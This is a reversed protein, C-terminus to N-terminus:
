ARVDRLYGHVLGKLRDSQQQMTQAAELVQQSAAGTVEAARSVGTINSSVEQTGRSAQEVNRAIERTASGQETVAAAISASLEEAAAAVTEVNSSAQEAATAVASAQHLSERATQAMRGATEELDHFGHAVADLIEGIAGNFRTTLTDRQEVRRVREEQQHRQDEALEDARLMNDRFVQLAAAMAGVEDRRGVAPIAAQKDGAALRQMAATMSTVPGVITRAVVFSLALGLILAIASTIGSMWQTREIVAAAQPGLTDQQAFYKSQMQQTVDQVKFGVPTLVKQLVDDRAKGAAVVSDLAETYKPLVELAESVSTRDDPDTIGDGLRSIMDAMSLRELNSQDLYTQERRLLYKGFAVGLAMFHYIADGARTATGADNGLSAFRMINRLQKKIEGGLGEARAAEAETRRQQTALENLGRRYQELQAALENIADREAADAAMGRTKELLPLVADYTKEFSKKGLRPIFLRISARQKAYRADLGDIRGM